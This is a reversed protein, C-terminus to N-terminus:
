SGISICTGGCGTLWIHSTVGAVLGVAPADVGRVRGTTVMGVTQEYVQVWTKRRPRVM